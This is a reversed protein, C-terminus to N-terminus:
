FGAGVANDATRAGRDSPASDSAAMAATQACRRQGCVEAEAGRHRGMVLAVSQRGSGLGGDRWWSESLAAGRRRRRAGGWLSLHRLARAGGAGHRKRVPWALSQRRQSRRHAATVVKAGASQTEPSWCLLRSVPAGPASSDVLVEKDLVM